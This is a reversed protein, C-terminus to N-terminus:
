LAEVDLDHRQRGPEVRGVRGLGELGLQGLGLRVESIADPDLHLPSQGVALLGEYPRTLNELPEVVRGVELIRQAVEGVPEVQRLLGLRPECRAPLRAAGGRRRDRRAQEFRSLPELAVRERAANGVRAQDPNEGLEPGLVEVGLGRAAQAVVEDGSSRRGVVEDRQVGLEVRAGGGRPDVLLGGLLQQQPKALAPELSLELGRVGLM